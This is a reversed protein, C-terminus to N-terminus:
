RTAWILTKCVRILGLDGLNQNLLDPSPGHSYMKLLSGPPVPAAPGNVVNPPLPSSTKQRRKEVFIYLSVPGPDWEQFGRCQTNLRVRGLRHKGWRFASLLWSSQTVEAVERIIHKRMPHWAAHTQSRQCCWQKWVSQYLAHYVIVM